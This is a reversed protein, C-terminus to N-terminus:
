TKEKIQRIQLAQLLLLHANLWDFEIIYNRKFFLEFKLSFMKNIANALVTKHTGNLKSPQYYHTNKAYSLIKLVITDNRWM